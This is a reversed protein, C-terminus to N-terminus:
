VWRELHPSPPLLYVVEALARCLAPVQSVLYIPVLHLDLALLHHRSRPYDLTEKVPVAAQPVLLAIESPVSLLSHLSLANLFRVEEQHHGDEAIVSSGRRATETLPFHTYM